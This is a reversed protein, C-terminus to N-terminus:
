RNSIKMSKGDVSLIYTATAPMPIATNGSAYMDCLTKGDLTHLSIRCKEKMGSVLIVGNQTEVSINEAAMLSIGDLEGVPIVCRANVAVDGEKTVVTGEPVIVCYEKDQGIAANRFDATMGWRGDNEYLEATAEEAVIGDTKNYLQITKNGCVGIPQGYEVYVKGVHGDAGDTSCGVYQLPSVVSGGFFSVTAEDNMIDRRLRAYVSGEPLVVTYKVGEEFRIEKGFDVAARGLNFDWGAECAYERITVGERLLKIQAGEVGETETSFDFSMRSREKVVAGEEIDSRVSGVTAPVEFDASIEDNTTSTDGEKFVTGKPVVIKYSKGKPLVLPDPFTVVVIGQENKSSYNLASLSGTAITQGDSVVTAVSGDSVGVLCDFYFSVDAIPYYVPRGSITNQWPVLASAFSNVSAIFAILSCMVMLVNRKMSQFNLQKVQSYVDMIYPSIEGTM